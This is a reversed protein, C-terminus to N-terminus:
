YTKSQMLSMESSMNSLGPQNETLDAPKDVEASAFIWEPFTSSNLPHMCTSKFWSDTNKM